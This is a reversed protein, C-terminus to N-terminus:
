RSIQVYNEKKRGRREKLTRSYLILEQYVLEAEKANADKGDLLECLRDLPVRTRWQLTVLSYCTNLLELATKVNIKAM